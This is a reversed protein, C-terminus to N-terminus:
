GGAAVSADPAVATELARVIRVLQSLILVGLGALVAAGWQGALFLVLALLAFLVYTILWSKNMGGGDRRSPRVDLARPDLRSVGRKCAPLQAAKPRQVHSRSHRALLDTVAGHPARLSALPASLEGRKM